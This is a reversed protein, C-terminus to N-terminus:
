ASCYLVLVSRSFVNEAALYLLLSSSVSLLPVFSFSSIQRMAASDKTHRFFRWHGKVSLAFMPYTLLFHVFLFIERDINKEKARADVQKVKNKRLVALLNIKVRESRTIGVPIM